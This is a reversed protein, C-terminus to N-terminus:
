GAEETGSGDAVDTQIKVGVWSGCARSLEYGYRGLDLIMENVGSLFRVRNQELIERNRLFSM